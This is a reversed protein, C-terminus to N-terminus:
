CYIIVDLYCEQIIEKDQAVTNNKNQIPKNMVAHGKLAVM